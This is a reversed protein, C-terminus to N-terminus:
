AATSDAKVRVVVITVDGENVEAGVALRMRDDSVNYCFSDNPGDHVYGIQGFVTDPDPTELMSGSRCFVPYGTDVFLNGNAQAHTIAAATLASISEDVSEFSPSEEADAGGGSNCAMCLALVSATGIFTAINKM